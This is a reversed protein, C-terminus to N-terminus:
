DHDNGGGNDDNLVDASAKIPRRKKTIIIGNFEIQARPITSERQGIRLLM